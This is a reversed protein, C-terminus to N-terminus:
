AEVATAEESDEVPAPGYDWEILDHMIEDMAVQTSKRTDAELRPSAGRLMREAREAALLIFRFKSDIREPM